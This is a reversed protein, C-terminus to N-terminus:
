PTTTSSANGADASGDKASDLKDIIEGTKVEAKQIQEHYKGGTRSDVAAGAKGVAQQIQDETADIGIPSVARQVQESSVEQRAPPMHTCAALGFFPLLVASAGTWFKNKMRCMTSGGLCLLFLRIECHYRAEIMSQTSETAAPVSDSDRKEGSGVQGYSENKGYENRKCSWWLNRFRNPCSQNM